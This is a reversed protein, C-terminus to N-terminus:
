IRKRPMWGSWILGEIDLERWLKRFQLSGKERSCLPYCKLTMDHVDSIVWHSFCKRHLGPSHSNLDRYGMYLWIHYGVDVSRHCSPLCLSSLGHFHFSAPWLRAVLLLSDIEFLPSPLALVPPQGRDEVYTGHWICIQVCMCMFVCVHIYMFQACMFCCFTEHRFTLTRVSISGNVDRAKNLEKEAQLM